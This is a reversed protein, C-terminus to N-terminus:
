SASSSRIPTSGRAAATCWEKRSTSPPWCPPPGTGSTTTPGPRASARSSRCARSTRDLAHIQSKDDFSLVVAPRATFISASSTKSRRPSPPTRPASSPAGATLSCSTRRGSANITSLSLDVAEAGSRGTWHTTEGPPEAYTLALVKAVVATPTPPNGPKRSGERLLREVGGGCRRAASRRPTPWRPCLGDASHLSGPSSCTSSRGAATASSRRSGRVVM